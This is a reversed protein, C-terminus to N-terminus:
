DDIAIGIPGNLKAAMGHGGDGSDGADTSASNRAGVFADLNSGSVVRAYNNGTDTFYFASGTSLLAVDHPSLLNVGASTASSQDGGSGGAGPNGALTVVSPSSVDLKRIVNNGNDAIYLGHAADLTLGLPSCFRMSTYTAVNSLGCSSGGTGGAFLLSTIGNWKQIHNEDAIYLYDSLPDYAVGEPFTLGSVLTTIQGTTASISRVRGSGSDSFVVAGDPYHITLFTPSSLQADTAAIGDATSSGYGAYTTIVGNDGDIRRIVNATTDTFFVDGYHNVTVGWPKDIGAKLAPGNDGSFSTLGAFGAFANILDDPASYPSAVRIRHNGSDAIFVRWGTVTIPASGSMAGVTAIVHFSDGVISTAKVVGNVDVSTSATDLSWSVGSTLLRKEGTSYHAYTYARRKGNVVTVSGDGASVVISDITGNLGCGRMLPQPAPNPTPASAQATVDITSGLSLDSTTAGYLAAPLSALLTDPPGHCSAATVPTATSGEVSLVQILRSPGATAQVPVLIPDGSTDRWVLDSTNGSVWCAGQKSATAVSAALAPELVNVFVCRGSANQLQARGRAPAPAPPIAVHVRIQHSGHLSCASLLGVSILFALSARRM